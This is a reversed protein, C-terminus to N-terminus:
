GQSRFSAFANVTQRHAADVIDSAAELRERPFGEAARMVASDPVLVLPRSGSVRLAETERELARRARARIPGRGARATPASVLVIDHREPVLADAHTSSAVAGDVYRVGDILKPQFVGPVASTAELADGLSVPVQDRGFVVTRGNDLCVSPVWLQSPWEQSAAFKRLMLTPFVGAPLLGVLATALGVHRVCRVLQPAVPRLARIGQQRLTDGVSRMDDREADTPPSSIMGLVDEPPTGALLTAAIAAGASTGVVRDANAPEREIANRVGELVGLHYAWGLPGGAGLVIGVSM